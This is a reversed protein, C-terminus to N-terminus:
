RGTHHQVRRLVPLWPNGRVSEHAAAIGVCYKSMRDPRLGLAAAVASASGRRLQAKIEVVAHGAGIDVRRGNAEVSLGLDITVREAAALDVLTVREFRTIASPALRDPPAFGYQERLAQGILEEADVGLRDPVTGPHPWRHKVTEGRRGKCKVELMTEAPDGYHRTRVKFRRRRRQLHDRYSRLDPTDYYVSTYDTSRRGAVELVRVHDPLAAVLRPLLGVDVVYKQDFRRQLDAVQVLGALDVSTLGEVGDLPAPVHITASM